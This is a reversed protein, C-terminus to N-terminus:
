ENAALMAIAEPEGMEAALKVLGVGRRQDQEVGEGKMYLLGLHYISSPHWRRMGATFYM